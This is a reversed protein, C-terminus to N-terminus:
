QLQEFDISNAFKIFYKVYSKVLKTKDVPWKGGCKHISQILTRREKGLKTCDYIIHDVTQDGDGCVCTASNKIKFRHFYANLRGHGTLLTTLNPTVEIKLKLRDQVSPFFAKTLTGKSTTSWESEWKGKSIVALQNRVESMPVKDYCIQLDVDSAAQKALRDALENGYNGVHAKVWGFDVLWRDNEVLRLNTRIGEILNNHNSGNRLSDLTIKSDTYIAIRREDLPREGITRLRKINDLAKMIALQEAQNNSCKNDLRFRLQQILENSQFIAVGAGVGRESKSGDTYIEYTYETNQETEKIDILEAPHTWNKHQIIYDLNLGDYKHRTKAFYLNVIEEIKFLIPTLGTVVCLAEYSTTRFAKAIRINILRQVQNLKKVNYNRELADIWVPAGYSLLPLIAGKYITRLAKHKLGWNIKATKSLANILSTCRETVYKIHENFRFRKDIIIGLYKIKDTQQLEKNNLFIHIDKQERRKRRTILMTKSKQENFKTKNKIAWAAIKKMELNAYNEAELITKGRTIVILDDAFAIVKTNATYELSLLSDYQINWFGPGCCSGQPCGKSVKKELKINNAALIAARQSFYNDTLKYLNRPCHFKRLAQMISPWWASDFAGQIDLSVLVLYQNQRLSEEVCDKLAMAADVTSRQPTFGFQNGNMLNKTQIHHMIRDILLKELVKGSTNLLSIPRFKTVEISADKGPKIIPLLRAKKWQEPFYAQRLCNNYIATVYRPLIKAVQLLVKSTIGDDGPSKNPDMKEIIRRIEQQSFDVDDQTKLPIRNTERVQKHYNNDAAEEDEPVFYDIMHQLTEKLSSTLSGDPKKLTTLPIPKRTKGSAIRYVENWPNSSPTLSCYRKWSNIKEKTMTREYERKAELYQYRREERLEQNYKTKQYRRRTANTKKRLITLEDTWWPITKRHTLKRASNSTRFCMRCVTTIVEEYERVLKETNTEENAIKSLEEDLDETTNIDAKNQIRKSFERQIKNSFDELQGDKIIYKTGLFTEENYYKHNSINFTIFRHDSCSEEEGCKWENVKSVLKDNTITLDINSKGTNSEFTTFESVENMVYLQKSSLYDEVQRGRINTNNDHWVASRSNSDISFIIGVDKTDELIKDLKAFDNNIDTTIDMYMSVAYFKYDNYLIEVVAVDEDSLQNLLVGDIRENALLVAARIRNEGQSFIRYKRTIGAVKNQLTYPEQIFAIDVNNIEMIHMLNSTAVRKHKLNIQLCKILQTNGRRSNHHKLRNNSRYGRDNYNATGSTTTALLVRQNAPSEM